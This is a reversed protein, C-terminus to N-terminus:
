ANIKHQCLKAKFPPQVLGQYRRQEPQPGANKYEFYLAYPFEAVAFRGGSRYVNFQISYGGAILFGPPITCHFEMEASSEEPGSPVECICTGDENYVGMVVEVMENLYCWCNFFINVAEGSTFSKESVEASKMKVWENGPAESPSGFSQSQEGYGLSGMYQRVVISPDGLAEIKGKDLWLAKQCLRKVPQMNHTVLLVTRGEERTMVNMKTMCKEQFDADGVALVEDIIMIESQLHAAVSFALRVYMGSSYRKVPTDIFAEVGSFAVIEDFKDKVERRSMGLINGSLYINQRGTLEPSFGTGVELMSSIRGRGRLKGETPSTIRCIIKLLTSKGSGNRGVIAFMEGEPVSFSIDKLAWFYAGEGGADAIRFFPKEQGLVKTKWWQAMDQKFSGSNLQGRRYMKSIRDIELQDM